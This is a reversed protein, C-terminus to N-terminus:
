NIIINLNEDEVWTEAIHKAEPLTLHWPDHLRDLAKASFRMGTFQKELVNIIYDSNEKACTVSYKERDPSLSALLGFAKSLFTDVQNHSYPVHMDCPAILETDHAFPLSAILEDTRNNFSHYWDKLEESEWGDAECRARLRSEEVVRFAHHVITYPKRWMPDPESRYLFSKTHHRGYREIVDRM